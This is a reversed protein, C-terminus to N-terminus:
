YELCEKSNGEFVSDTESCADNGSKILKTDSSLLIFIETGLWSGLRPRVDTQDENEANNWMHLWKKDWCLWSHSAVLQASDWISGLTEWFGTSLLAYKWLQLKWKDEMANLLCKQLKQWPRHCDLSVISITKAWLLLIKLSLNRYQLDKWIEQTRGANISSHFAVKRLWPECVSEKLVPAESDSLFQGALGSGACLVTVYYTRMTPQLGFM